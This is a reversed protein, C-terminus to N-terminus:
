RKESDYEEGLGSEGASSTVDSSRDRLGTKKEEGADRTPVQEDAKRTRTGM